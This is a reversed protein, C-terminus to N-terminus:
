GRWSPLPRFAAVALAFLLAGVGDAVFDLLEATRHPLFAQVVELLGGAATAVVGAWVIRPIRELDPRLWALSRVVLPVAAGFALAHLLKDNGVGQPQVTGPLVGGVFLLFLYLTAPVVNLAYGGRPKPPTM